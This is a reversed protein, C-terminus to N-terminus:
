GRPRGYIVIMEATSSLNITMVSRTLVPPLVIAETRGNGDEFRSVKSRSRKCTYPDHGYSEQSQLDLDSTLTLGLESGSGSGLGVGTGVELRAGVRVRDTQGRDEISFM